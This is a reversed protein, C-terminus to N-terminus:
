FPTALHPVPLKGKFARSKLLGLMYMSFEKLNEPLVLQGPPHSGSFSKRYGALVDVTKETLASRVDKLTRDTMKSAAEKAIMNVVADQDIFRMGELAGESVSAVTNTCRVRREGSATTYLLACQFHADLKADLKGDYSFMVGIAKDADIVGFELDAGFTHQLFNGHYSLIQLGNSCRVKMLAQYGTERTVTHKVEQSLKFRDRPAHFNPYFFTEGGTVASVHGITAIDMYGGGAAGIFFDVGIGSEVMKSAAKKWGPHDTAFLKKETEINHLKGDDRMFLRGPGWTPLASLSCVIKGGTSSLASLAANLTPLLAPEPSRIRSFLDPIRTLLSAIISKSEYPDVFLGDSGLPVFPDDIDSMVLMQAQDLKANCNYFHVDKDFSVFGVKSGMPIRRKSEARNSDQNQDGTAGDEDSYLANMIGECFAELWGRNVAEQGVDILFLWRLGVPEKAWYEKPVMFEVTGMTLEPRQARDVRAGSPDTPAFYEPTVENPFTCMNCVVKNGGSRFTMFPNIYARCRRCRPPGTEGFDLVPIPHEGEQLLALPQLVLGLPLATATLAESSSPINNLTLRAFKPSSNGQDHAVFPVAGPPPLHQEMTPYVHDLYYKAPGDRSRPISPIQEPDVRGQASVGPGSPIPMSPTSGGFNPRGSLDMSPQQGGPTFPGNAPAPFQSMAPTIPQGAYPHSPDANLFQTPNVGGQPIGNFAQSSGTPQELNHYAHRHKKKNTRGVGPAEGGFNMNGMQRALGGTTGDEHVGPQGHVPLHGQEQSANGQPQNGGQPAGEYQNPQLSPPIQGYSSGTQQYGMPASAGPPRSQPPAPQTQLQPHQPENDARQGGLAHYMTYDSM